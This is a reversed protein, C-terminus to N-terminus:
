WCYSSSKDMETCITLEALCQFILRLSLHFYCLKLAAFKEMILHESFGQFKTAMKFQNVKPVGAILAAKLIDLDYLYHRKKPDNPQYLGSVCFITQPPTVDLKALFATV